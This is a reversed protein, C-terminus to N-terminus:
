DVNRRMLVVTELLNADIEGVLLQLLEEVMVHEDLFLLFVLAFTDVPSEDIETHIQQSADLHNLLHLKCIKREYRSDIFM